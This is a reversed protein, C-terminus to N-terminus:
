TEAAYTATMLCFNLLLDLINAKSWVLECCFFHLNSTCLLLHFIKDTCSVVEKTMPMNDPSQRSRDGLASGNRRSFAEVAASSFKDRIDQGM